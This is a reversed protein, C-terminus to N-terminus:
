SPRFANLSSRVIISACCAFILRDCSAAISVVADSLARDWNLLIISLIIFSSACPIAAPDDDSSLSARAHHCSRSDHFDNTARFAVLAVFTRTQDRCRSFEEAGLAELLSSGAFYGLAGVDPFPREEEM